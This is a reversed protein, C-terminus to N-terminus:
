IFQSEKNCFEGYIRLPLEEQVRTNICAKDPQLVLTNSYLHETPMRNEVSAHEKMAKISKVLTIIENM